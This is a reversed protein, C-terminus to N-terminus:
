IVAIILFLLFGLPFHFVGFLLPVIVFCIIGGVNGLVGRLMLLMLMVDLIERWSVCSSREPVLVRSVFVWWDSVCVSWGSVCVRWRSM